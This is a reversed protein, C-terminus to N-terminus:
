PKPKGELAKDGSDGEEEEEEDEEEEDEEEEDEEEEDDDDDEEEEEDNDGTGQNAYRGQAVTPAPSEEVVKVAKPKPERKLGTKSRRKAKGTGQEGKLTKLHPSVVCFARSDLINYAYMFLKFSYRGRQFKDPHAEFIPDLAQYFGLVKNQRHKHAHMHSRACNCLLLM